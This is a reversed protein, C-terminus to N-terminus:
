PVEPETLPEVVSVTVAAVRTEMVTVGAFGVIAAPCCNCNVAM